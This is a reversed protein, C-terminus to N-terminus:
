FYAKGFAFSKGLNLTYHALVRKMRYTAAALAGVFCLTPTPVRCCKHNHTIYTGSTTTETGGLRPLGQWKIGGFGFPDGLTHM